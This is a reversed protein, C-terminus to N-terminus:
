EYRKLSKNKFLHLLKTKYERKREKHTEGSLNCPNRHGIAHRDWGDPWKKLPKGCLPCLVRMDAVDNATLEMANVIYGDKNKIPKIM